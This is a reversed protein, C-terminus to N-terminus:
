DTMFGTDIPVKHAEKTQKNACGAPAGRVKSTAETFGLGCFQPGSGQGAMIM